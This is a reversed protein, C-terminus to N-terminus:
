REEEKLKVEEVDTVCSFSFHLFLFDYKVNM